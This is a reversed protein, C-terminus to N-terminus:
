ESSESDSDAGAEGEAEEEAQMQAMQAERARESNRYADHIEGELLERLQEVYQQGGAELLQEHLGAHLDCM